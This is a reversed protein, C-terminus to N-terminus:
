KVEWSYDKCDCARYLATECRAKITCDLAGKDIVKINADTINLRKTCDVIVEKIHKGFQKKVPSDLDINIGKDGKDVMIMIDSSEMTGSVGSQIIEM